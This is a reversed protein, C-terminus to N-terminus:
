TRVCKVLVPLKLHHPMQQILSRAPFISVLSPENQTRRSTSRSERGKCVVCQVSPTGEAIPNAGNGVALARARLLDSGVDLLALIESAEFLKEQLM